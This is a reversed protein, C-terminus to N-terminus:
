WHILSSMFQFSDIFTLHEGLMFAMYKEMNNPIANIPMKKIEGNKTKYPNEEVIKGIQQMIFYIDYGRLNHFIVQIKKSMEKVQEKTFISKLVKRCYKVEVLMKKMFKYVANQGRYM